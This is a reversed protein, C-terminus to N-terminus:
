NTEDEIEKRPEKFTRKTLWKARGTRLFELGNVHHIDLESLWAEADGCIFWLTADLALVPDRGRLDTVARKAVAIALQRFAFDVENMM